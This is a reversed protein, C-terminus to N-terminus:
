AIGYRLYGNYFYLLSLGVLLGLHIVPLYSVYEAAKAQFDRKMILSVLILMVSQSILLLSYTGGLSLRANNMYIMAPISIACVIIGCMYGIRYLRYSKESFLLITGVLALRVSIPKDTSKM